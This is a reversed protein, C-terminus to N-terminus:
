VPGSRTMAEVSSELTPTSEEFSTDRASSGLVNRSSLPSTARPPGARRRAGRRLHPRWRRPGRPRSRRSVSRGTCERRAETARTAAARSLRVAHEAVPPVSAPGDVEGDADTRGASRGRHRGSPAVATVVPGSSSGVSTATAPDPVRPTTSAGWLSPCTQWHDRCSARSTSSPYRTAVKEQDPTPSRENVSATATSRSAPAVSTASTPADLPPMYAAASASSSSGTM